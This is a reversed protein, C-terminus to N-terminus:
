FDKGGGKVWEDFSPPEAESVNSGVESAARKRHSFYGALLENYRSMLLTQTDEAEFNGAAKVAGAPRVASVPAAVGTATAGTAIAGTATAGTATAGNATVGNATAGTATASAAAAAKASTPGLVSEASVAANISAKTSAPVVTQVAKEMRSLALSKANGQPRSEVSGFVIPLAKDSYEAILKDVEERREFTSSIRSYCTVADRYKGQAALKGALNFLSQDLVAQRKDGVVPKEEHLSRELVNIANEEDGRLIYKAAVDLANKSSRDLGKCVDMITVVVIGGVALALLIVAAFVARSHRRKVMRPMAFSGTQGSHGYNGSTGSGSQNTRVFVPTVFDGCDLCFDPRKTIPRRCNPCQKELESKSRIKYNSM